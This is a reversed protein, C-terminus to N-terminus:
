AAGQRGAAERIRHRWSWVKLAKSLLQGFPISLASYLLIWHPLVTQKFMDVTPNWPAAFFPYDLASTFNWLWTFVPIVVIMTFAMPKMQMASLQSQLQLMQPQLKALKEMRRADQSKRADRFEKQFSRMMQQNRAMELWDVFFHRVGTSFAVTVFGALLFTLVPFQGGFGIAPSLVVGAYVGLKTRLNENFLVFLVVMFSLFITMQGGMAPKPAGGTLQKEKRRAELEKSSEPTEVIEVEDVVDPLAGAAGPETKDADANM